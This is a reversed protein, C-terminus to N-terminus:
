FLDEWKGDVFPKSERDHIWDHIWFDREIGNDPFPDVDPFPDILPNDEIDDDSIDRFTDRRKLLKKILANDELEDLIDLVRELKEVLEGVKELKDVIEDLEDIYNQIDSM